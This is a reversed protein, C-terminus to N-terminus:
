LLQHIIYCISILHIIGSIWLAKKLNRHKRHYAAAKLSMKFDPNVPGGKSRFKAM